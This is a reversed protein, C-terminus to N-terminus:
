ICCSSFTINTKPGEGRVFKKAVSLRLTILKNRSKHKNEAFIEQQALGECKMVQDSHRNLKSLRSCCLPIGARIWEGSESDWCSWLDKRVKQLPWVPVHKGQHIRGGWLSNAANTPRKNWAFCLRTSRGFSGHSRLDVITNGTWFEVSFFQLVKVLSCM